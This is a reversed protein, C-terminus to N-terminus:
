LIEVLRLLHKQTIEIDDLLRLIQKRNEYTHREKNSLLMKLLGGLRGQDANIKALELVAMKDLKSQLEYGLGLSRLYHSTSGSNVLNQRSEIVAKEDNNVWVRIAKGRKERKMKVQRSRKEKKLRYGNDRLAPCNSGYPSHISLSITIKARWFPLGIECM